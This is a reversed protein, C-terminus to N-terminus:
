RNREKIEVKTGPWNNYVTTRSINLQRAIESKNLSPNTNLLHEIKERVSMGAPLAPVSPSEVVIASARGQVAEPLISRLKEFVLVDIHPNLSRISRKISGRLASQVLKRGYTDVDPPTNRWARFRAIQTDLFVIVFDYTDLLLGLAGALRAAVATLDQHAEWGIGVMLLYLAWAGGIAFPRVRKVQQGEGGYAALLWLGLFMGDILAVTLYDHSVAWTDVATRTATLLKVGFLGFPVGFDRLWRKL